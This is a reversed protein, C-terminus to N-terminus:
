RYGAWSIAVQIAMIFAAVAIKWGYNAAAPDVLGIKGFLAIVLDLIIWTNVACWGVALCAQIAAPVYAGRRGFAARSLVMGTVGTRQGMLVFLGFIAMGILNGLVLVILTDALGLGLNVGLAGLVWNIPAINAGCWIWFQGSVKTTRSSEPIPQLRDEVDHISAPESPAPASMAPPGGPSRVHRETRWM